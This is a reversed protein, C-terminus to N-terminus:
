YDGVNHGDDGFSDVSPVGLNSQLVLAEASDLDRMDREHVGSERLRVRDRNIEELREYKELLRSIQTCEVTDRTVFDVVNISSHRESGIRSVRGEMQLNDILSWSRQVCFLTDAHQLGDTGTGGAKITMLVVNLEDARFREIVRQRDFDSMGGVILGHPVGRKKFRTAALEILQRSEASIVVPKGGLEDYAAELEDLKTSPERLTVSLRRAWACDDVHESFGLGHCSCPSQATLPASLWEVDCYSSSLQLLRMANTLNNQAVLVEGNELRTVLRDELERYAKAQKSSMNVWRTTRVVPPLQTLVLSKPTRRFRPDLVNYFEQAHTPHVGVIDMGGFANWAQLGYRTVYKTKVPYETPAILHMISWLDGIHNAIPTGTLAYRRRVTPGHAVAWCARTQKSLPDKLRHCEDVIVTRFGLENLEKPHVECRTATVGEQGHHPSCVRCRTLNVSGYPALRSFQRVAEINIIVLARPDDKASALLKRRQAASGTVVYPVVNTEWRAVQSEWARKVSNPCVVLAPLVDSVDGAARDILRQLTALLQATKGLGMDDSLLASESTILFEVGSTQFDYLADPYGSTRDIKARLERAPHVRRTFEDHSWANLEPGVTLDDKFQGRLQLCAAWTLPVTWVKSTADWRSGPIEKVLEAETWRTFVAIHDGHREVLPM